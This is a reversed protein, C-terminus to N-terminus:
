PGKDGVQGEKVVGVGAADRRVTACPLRDAGLRGAGGVCGIRFLRRWGGKSPRVRQVAEQTPAARGQRWM